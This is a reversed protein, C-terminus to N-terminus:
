RAAATGPEEAARRWDAGRADAVWGAVQEAIVVHGAPSPHGDASTLYPQVPAQRLASLVDIVDVGARVLRETLRSRLAAEDAVLEPLHAHARPAALRPWFVSEKTPILVVLFGTGAARCQAAMTTVAAVTRELGLLVRPDRRDLVLRRYRPTLVTRWDPGDVVSVYSLDSPTLTRPGSLHSRVQRALAYLMVRRGMWARVRALPRETRGRGFIRGATRELPEQEDVVAARRVLEDLAPPVPTGRALTFADMFDNGFYVSAIVARPKLALADPLQRASHVPGYGGFAMSYITLGTRRALVMPWAEDRAVSTGYTQSDGLVVIDASALARANRYGRGDHDPHRPNGRIRLRDDAVIVPPAQQKGLLAGVPTFAALVQLVAECALLSLTLVILQTRLGGLWSTLGAV